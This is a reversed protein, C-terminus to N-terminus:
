VLWLVGGILLTFGILLALIYGIMQVVNFKRWGLTQWNTRYKRLLLWLLAFGVVADFLSYGLSVWVNDSSLLQGLFSLSPVATALISLWFVVVFQLGFWALCFLVADRLSWPVNLHAPLSRRTAAAAAM